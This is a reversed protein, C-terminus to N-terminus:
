CSEDSSVKLSYDNGNTLKAGGQNLWPHAELKALEKELKGEEEEYDHGSERFKSEIELHTKSDHDKTKVLYTKRRQAIRLKKAFYIKLIVLMIGLYKYRM